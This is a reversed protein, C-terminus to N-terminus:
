FMTPFPSFGANEGKGVINRVSGLVFKLEKSVNIKDDAFAKLKSWNLFKDPLSNFTMQLNMKVKFLHLDLIIEKPLLSICSCFDKPQGMSVANQLCYVTTSTAGDTFNTIHYPPFLHFCMNCANEGEVM